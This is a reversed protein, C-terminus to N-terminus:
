QKTKNVLPQSLCYSHNRSINQESAVSHYESESLPILLHRALIVVQQLLEKDKEAENVPCSFISLFHSSLSPPHCVTLPCLDPSSGQAAAPLVLDRYM